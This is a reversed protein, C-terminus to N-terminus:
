RVDNSPEVRGQLQAVGRTNGKMHCVNRQSNIAFNHDFHFSFIYIKNVAHINNTNSAKRRMQYLAKYSVVKSWLAFEKEKYFLM